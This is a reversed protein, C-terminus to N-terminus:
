LRSVGRVWSSLNGTDAYSHDKSTVTVGIGYSDGTPKVQTLLRGYSNYSTAGGISTIAWGDWTGAQTWPLTAYGSPTGIYLNALGGSINLSWGLGTDTRLAAAYVETTGSSAIGHDKSSGRWANGEPYSATLLRGAGSYGAHIGGGVLYYGSDFAATLISHAGGSNASKGYRYQMLGRLATADLGDVKLGFAYCTVRHSYAVQHDKSKVNWTNSTSWAHNSDNGTSPYSDVLLGGPQGMGEVAAGGGVLVYDNDPACTTSPAQSTASTRKVIQVHVSNSWDSRVAVLSGVMDQKTVAVDSETSNSDASTSGDVAGCGTISVVFVSLLGVLSTNKKSM